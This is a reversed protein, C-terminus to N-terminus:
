PRHAEFVVEPFREAPRDFLITEQGKLERDFFAVEFASVITLGRRGDIPGVLHLWRTVPSFLPFDSFNPHFM